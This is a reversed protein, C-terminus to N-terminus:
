ISLFPMLYSKMGKIVESAKEREKFTLWGFESNQLGYPQSQLGIHMRLVIKNDKVLVLKSEYTSVDGGTYTCNFFEQIKLLTEKEDTYLVKSLSKKEEASQIYYLKFDEDNFNFESFPNFFDGKNLNVEKVMIDDSNESVLPLLGFFYCCFIVLFNAIVIVINRRNM